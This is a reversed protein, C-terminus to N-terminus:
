VIDAQSKEIEEVFGPINEPPHQGDADIIIAPALGEKLCNLIGKIISAGKGSNVDNKVVVAGSERSVEATNDSSGDDVVIVHSVQKLARQILLPLSKEENYAPIIVCANKRIDM